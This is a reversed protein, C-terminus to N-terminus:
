PASPRETPNERPTQQPPSSRKSRRELWDIAPPGGIVVAAVVLGLLTAGVPGVCGGGSISLMPGPTQSLPELVRPLNRLILTDLESWPLAKFPLLLWPYLVGGGPGASTCTLPAYGLWYPVCFLIPTLGLHVACRVRGAGRLWPWTAFVILGSLFLFEFWVNWHYRNVRKWREDFYAEESLVYEYQKQGRARARDLDAEHIKKLFGAADNPDAGSQLWAQFGKEVHPRLLGPPANRLKEVVKPFLAVAEDAPVRYLFQGHFGSDYYIFWGDRPLYFSGM